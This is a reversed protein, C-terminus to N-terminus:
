NRSVRYWSTKLLSKLHNKNNAAKLNIDTINWQLPGRYGFAMQGYKSKVRPVVLMGADVARTARGAHTVRNLQDTLYHPVGDKLCGYIVKVMTKCRRTPLTDLHLREHLEYIPTEPQELLILRAAANQVVQLRKLQYQPTVEYILCGYDFHPTILSKYLM